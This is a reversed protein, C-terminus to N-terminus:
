KFAPGDIWLVLSIRNGKTVEKVRHVLFSPFIIITGKKKPAIFNIPPTAIELEGGEYENENSIQVSISLKKMTDTKDELIDDHWDYKGKETSKYLTFQIDDIIINIDFNYTQNAMSTYKLIRDYIWKYDFSNKPIWFNESVRYDKVHDSKIKSTDTKFINQLDLIKQIEEDSFCNEFYLPSTISKM